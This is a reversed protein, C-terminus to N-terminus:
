SRDITMRGNLWGTLLHRLVGAAVGRRREEQVARVARVRRQQAQRRRIQRPRRRTKQARADILRGGAAVRVCVYSLLPRPHPRPSPLSLTLCIKYSTHIHIWISKCRLANSAVSTFPWGSACVRRLLTCCPLPKYFELVAAAAATAPDYVALALFVRHESVYPSVNAPRSADNQVYEFM